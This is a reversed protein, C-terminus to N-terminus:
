GGRPQPARRAATGWDHTGTRSRWFGRAAALNELVFYYPLTLRSGQSELRGRADQWAGAAALAYFAVQPLTLLRLPLPGGLSLLGSGLAVGLPLFGFWRLVKHSLMCFRELRADAPPWILDELLAQFNGQEVRIKRKFEAQASQPSDEWAVADPEYVLRLGQRIVGMSLVFDDNLIHAPVPSFLRTRLAYMGGDAGIMSGAQSECTQIFREYRYYLGQSEGLSFGEPRLRVDASVGGITPDAFNRVLKRLADPEFFVNADSFVLIDPPEQEPAQLAAVARNLTATKGGRPLELVHVGRTEFTRAQAVTSDDSGDSAVWIHLRDKPYDLQLANELKERIVQGENWAAIILAVRPTLSEDQTWPRPRVRALLGILLPYGAYTYGLLALSSYLSGGLLTLLM